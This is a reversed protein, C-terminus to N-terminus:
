DERIHRKALNQNNNLNSLHRSFKATQDKSQHFRKHLAHLKHNDCDTSIRGSRDKVIIMKRVECTGDKRDSTKQYNIAYSGRDDGNFLSRDEDKIKMTAEVNEVGLDTCRDKLVRSVNHQGRFM